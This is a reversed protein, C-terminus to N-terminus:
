EEKAKRMAKALKGHSSYQKFRKKESRVLGIAAKEQEFALERMLRQYNELWSSALFGKCVAEQVACGPEQEHRCDSFRCAEALELIDPFTDAIGASATGIGVERLGPTDIMLAGGKLIFLQRVTTTHRGKGNYDRTGRTEQVPLDLLRNILTSRGVGSSGILVVTTCPTLYPGLRELGEGSLASLPIVPIGASVPNIERILLAPDDALDSKNIVIVPRAGSANAIALDREIQRANLDLGAATLIFVTDINAAIVQDTGERGSSGRTFITKQPLIDVIMLSDAQPQNHLVVFDGVAPFRGLRRLAGCIGAMVSGNETFVEWVTKVPLGCAWACVPRYIDFVSTCIRGDLGATEHYRSAVHHMGSLLQVHFVSGLFLFPQRRHTFHNTTVM